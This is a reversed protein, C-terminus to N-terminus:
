LANITAPAREMRALARLVAAQGHRGAALGILLLLVPELVGLPLDPTPVDVSVALDDSHVAIEMMRTVLFDDLSLAWPGSPASVPRDGQEGAFARELAALADALDRRVADPGAAAVEEARGRIGVNSASGVDGDIWTARAYHERLPVVPRGSADAALTKPVNVVQSALHAALAGVTMEPLASPEDWRQTVAPEALLAAASRAAALYADSHQTM